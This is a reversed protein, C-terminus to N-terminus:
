GVAPEIKRNGLERLTVGLTVWDSRTRGFAIPHPTLAFLTAGVKVVTDPSLEVGAIREWHVRENMGYMIVFEPKYQRIRERIVELREERFLSRDILVRSSKAALGSLEIALTEGQEVSARGWRDRQYARLSEHDPSEDLRTKLLLMLSRWTPQLRPRERHWSTEGIKHHFERCDCLESRGLSTWANLRRDNEDAEKPGKGQEPGIFWFPADWHGFGYFRRAMEIEDGINDM